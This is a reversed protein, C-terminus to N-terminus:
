DTARELICHTQGTRPPPLKLDFGPRELAQVAVLKGSATTLHVEYRDMTSTQRPGDFPNVRVRETGHHRPKIARVLERSVFSSQSGLDIFVWVKARREQGKVAAVATMLQVEAATNCAYSKIASDMDLGHMLVHHKGNFKTCKGKSYCHTM